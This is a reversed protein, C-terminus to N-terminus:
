HTAGSRLATWDEPKIRGSIEFRGKLPRLVAIEGEALRVATISYFPNGHGVVVTNAKEPQTGSRFLM